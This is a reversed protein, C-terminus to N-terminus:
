IAARWANAGRRFLAAGLNFHTQGPEPHMSGDGDGHAEIAAKVPEASYDLIRTVVLRKKYASQHGYGQGHAEEEEKAVLRVWLAKRDDARAEPNIRVAQGYMEEIEEGNMDPAFEVWPYEYQDRWDLINHDTPVLFNQEMAFLVFGEVIREDSNLSVGQQSRTGDSQALREAKCGVGSAAILFFIALRGLFRHRATSDQVRM